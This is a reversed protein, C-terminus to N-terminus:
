PKAGAQQGSAPVIKVRDGEGLFGAGESVVSDGTSLGQLIEIRDGQSAGASVRKRHAIGEGDVTFVYAYGDRMVVAAAPVSLGPSRQTLIRGQVFAGVKLAGPEPLEIYATGTRSTSDVGPSVARVRGSVEGRPGLVRAEAGTEVRALDAEPLDPRWELRGQRILRLLESGAAVVQGPQVLRKSIVGADPARLAAFSRRLRSGDLQARSTAERAQAQVLAARLEDMASASILQATALGQGRNLNVQALKVGSAAEDHAAEAQRLESDLTRHDLELLLQGKAVHQGVDVNLATVRQGSLEVGLQMEEWAVIPGSALVVREIPSQEAKGLAVALSPPAVAAGAEQTAPKNCASVMLVLLILSPCRVISVPM